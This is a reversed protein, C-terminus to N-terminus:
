RALTRRATVPIARYNRRLLGFARSDDYAAIGAEQSFGEARHSRFDQGRLSDRWQNDGLWSGGRCKRMCHNVVFASLTTM